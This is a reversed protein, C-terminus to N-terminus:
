RCGIRDVKELWGGNRMCAGPGASSVVPPIVRYPEKRFLALAVGSNEGRMYEQKRGGEGREARNM